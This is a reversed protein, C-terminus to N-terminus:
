GLTVATSKLASVSPIGLDSTNKSLLGGKM